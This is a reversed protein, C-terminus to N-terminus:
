IDWGGGTVNLWSQSVVGCSCESLEGCVGTFLCTQSFRGCQSLYEWGGGTFMLLIQSVRGGM